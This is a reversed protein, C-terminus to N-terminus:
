PGTTTSFTGTTHRRVGGNHFALEGSLNRTQINNGNAYDRTFQYFGTFNLM